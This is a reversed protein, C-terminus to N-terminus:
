EFIEEDSVIKQEYPRTIENLMNLDNYTNLIKKIFLEPVTKNQVFAEFGIKCWLRMVKYKLCTSRLMFYQEKETVYLNDDENYDQRTM